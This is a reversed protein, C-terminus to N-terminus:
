VVLVWQPFAARVNTSLQNMSYTDTLPPCRVYKGWVCNGPLRQWGRKKNSEAPRLSIHYTKVWTANKTVM